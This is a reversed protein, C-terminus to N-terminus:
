GSYFWVFREPHIGIHFAADLFTFSGIFLLSCM